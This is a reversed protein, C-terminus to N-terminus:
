HQAVRFAPISCEFGEMHAAIRAQHDQRVRPLESGSGQGRKYGTVHVVPRAIAIPPSGVDYDAEDAPSRVIGSAVIRSTARLALTETADTDRARFPSSITLSFVRM